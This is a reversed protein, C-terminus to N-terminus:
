PKQLVIFMNSEGFLKLSLEDIYTIWDSVFFKIFRIFRGAIPSLFLFNRIIGETKKTELIKFGTKECKRALEQITYRRLHGVRIDFETAIGLRYLPANKSPTSILVMGNSKLLSFIKKLALEDNELHEIVETLIIFDFKEEPTEDPFHMKKFTVNKLGILKKSENASVIANKSIDIGLVDNGKSALYLAITGAGCGIDLIKVPHRLLRNLLSTINRYTFDTDTIIKRQPNSHKLFDEYKKEIRKKM